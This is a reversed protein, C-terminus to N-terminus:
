WRYMASLLVDHSTYDDATIKDGTSFSGTSVEGLNIYRYAAEVNWHQAFAWDVGLMVGWAVNNVATSLDATAGTGINKRAVDSHNRAWGLTGGFFPTFSSMNRYEFLANFLVNTSDLNNNYGVDTAGGGDRFDWDFRVRHAVEVETRLPLWGWRYGVVGGGGAVLDDGHRELYSGTFGTTEIGDLDAVSGILRLGAYFGDRDAATAPTVISLVLLFMAVRWPFAM